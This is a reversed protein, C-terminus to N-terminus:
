RKPAVGNPSPEMIDSSSASLILPSSSRWIPVTPNISIGSVVVKIVNGGSNSGAGTVEQLTTPVYYHIEVATAVNSDNIFGFSYNQVVARISADQGSYGSLVQSTIAFRVGERVAEHICASAFIAWALDVTLMLLGLLPLLTLTFEVLTSGRERNERERRVPKMEVSM